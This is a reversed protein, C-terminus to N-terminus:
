TCFFPFASNFFISYSLRSPFLFPLFMDCRRLQPPRLLCPLPRATKQSLANMFDREGSLYCQEIGISPNGSEGDVFFDINFVHRYVPVSTYQPKEINPQGSPKLRKIAPNDPTVPFTTSPASKRKGSSIEEVEGQNSVAESSHALSPRVCRRSTTELSTASRRTM